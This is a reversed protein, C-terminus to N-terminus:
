KKKEKLMSVLTSMLYEFNEGEIMKEGELSQFHTSPTQSLWTKVFKKNKLNIRSVDIDGIIVPIKFLDVIM